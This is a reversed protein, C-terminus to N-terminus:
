NNSYESEPITFIAEHLNPDFKEGMPAFQVVGFRKLCSDMVHQTMNMGKKVELFSRKIEELDKVDDLKIKESFDYGMQLNDRVDLLDKAFKSIAYERTSDIEKKYRKVTNDNEALQYILKEKYQKVQEKLVEIEKDQEAILKKIKDVDAKSLSEASGEDESSSTSDEKNATKKDKKDEEKKQTKAEQKKEEAPKGEEKASSTEKKDSFMRAQTFM